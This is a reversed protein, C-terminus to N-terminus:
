LAAAPAAELGAEPAVTRDYDSVLLGLLLATPGPLCLSVVLGYFPIVCVGAWALGLAAARVVLRTWAARHGLAEGVRRPLSLVPVLEHRGASRLPVTFVAWIAAGVALAVFGAAFFSGFVIALSAAPNSM